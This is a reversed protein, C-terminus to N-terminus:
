SQEPWIKRIWNKFLSDSENQAEAAIAIMEDIQAKSMRSRYIARCFGKKGIVVFCSTDDPHKEAWSGDLVGDYDFLLLPKIEPNKELKNKALTKLVFNPLWSADCNIIVLPQYIKLTLQGDNVAKKIAAIAEDGIDRFRPDVYDLIVMKGQFCDMQYNKLDGAFIWDPVKRGVKLVDDSAHLQPIFVFSIIILLFIIRNLSFLRIKETM